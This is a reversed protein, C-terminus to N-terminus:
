LMSIARPMLETVDMGTASLRIAERAWEVWVLRLENSRQSFVRLMNATSFGSSSLPLCMRRTSSTIVVPAVRSFQASAIWLATGVAVMLTAVRAKM